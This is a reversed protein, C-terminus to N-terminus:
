EINQLQERIKEIASKVQVTKASILADCSKAGITNAERQMEQTIFDLEKGIPSSGSLKHFLGELHFALREMEETIDSEKLFAAREDDTALKAVRERVTKKFRERIFDLDRKVARAKAKTHRCLVRGEKSRAETLKSIAETLVIKLHPWVKSFSGRNKAVSLVGPLTILTDMGIDGDIRLQKKIKRFHSVYQRLLAEDVAVRPKEEGSININCVVRGRKIRAQLEKKIGGELASLGEPLNLVAELFKHNSSRIEVCIKGYHKVVAYGRGFGTMSKIM